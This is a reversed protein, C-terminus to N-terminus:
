DGFKVTVHRWWICAETMELDTRARARTYIYVCV